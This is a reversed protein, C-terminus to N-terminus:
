AKLTVIGGLSVLRSGNLLQNLTDVTPQLLLGQLTHSAGAFGEGHGVEDFLDLLRGEDQAM